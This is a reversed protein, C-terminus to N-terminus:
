DRSRSGRRLALAILGTGLLLAAVPSAALACVGFLAAFRTRIEPRM